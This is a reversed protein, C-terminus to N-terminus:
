PRRTAIDRGAARLQEVVQKVKQDAAKDIVLIADETAIVVLDRVGVAAILPGESRLYCGQAGISLVDGLAVNGAEDQEGIEWLASWSGVDTWGMDVPVVAAKSTREMVAYDISISPCSALAESDLRLFDADRAARALTQEAGALVEPAHLRMEEVLTRADMLFIGSNWVHEGGDLYIQATAQDPKEVFARVKRVTPAGDVAEGLHIYGYGTAPGSPRIGFLVLGGQAAAPIAADIAARFAAQDSVRHDAPAALILAQPDKALASLAAVAVAPATNRGFPELIISAEMGLERLQEAVLFRHEANAIVALPEFREPDSVRLATEQLLTQEGAMPLLQKPYSERSLPWLRSGAGGSLLFPFIRRRAGSM